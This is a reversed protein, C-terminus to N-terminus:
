DRVLIRIPNTYAVLMDGAPSRATVRARFYASRGDEGAVLATPTWDFTNADASVKRRAVSEPKGFVGNGIIEVTLPLHAGALGRKFAVRFGPVSSLTKLRM